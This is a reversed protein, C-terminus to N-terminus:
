IGWVIALAMAVASLVMVVCSIIVAWDYWDYRRWNRPRLDAHAPVLILPILGALIFITFAVKAVIM